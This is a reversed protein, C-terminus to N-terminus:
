TPIITIEVRPNAKDQGGVSTVTSLHNKVSDNIILNIDQLGDLTMKEIAHFVNSPDTTPNKYFLVMSITFTEYPKSPISSVLDKILSHYYQKVTNKTHYHLNRLWNDGVLHTSSKKTKREVIYYIPLSFTIM